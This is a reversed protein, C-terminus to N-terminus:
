LIIKAQSLLVAERYNFLRHARGVVFFRSEFEILCVAQINQCLGWFVGHIHNEGIRRVEKGIASKGHVGPPLHADVFTGPVFAIAQVAGIQGM